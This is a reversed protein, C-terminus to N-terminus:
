KVELLWKAKVYFGKLRTDSANEVIELGFCVPIVKGWILLRAKEGRSTCPVDGYELRGCFVSGKVEIVGFESTDGGQTEPVGDWTKAGAFVSAGRALFAAGQWRVEVGERALNSPANGKKM